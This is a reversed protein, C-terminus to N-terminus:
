MICTYYTLVQLAAKPMNRLYTLYAKRVSGRDSYQAQYNCTRFVIFQASRVRNRLVEQRNYFRCFAPDDYLALM